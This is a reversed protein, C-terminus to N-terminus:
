VGSGSNGPRVGMMGDSGSTASYIESWASDAMPTLGTSTGSTSTGEMGTMDWASSVALEQAGTGFPAFLQPQTVQFVHDPVEFFMFDAGGGTGPTPMASSPSKPLGASVGFSPPTQESSDTPTFSSNSRSKAASSDGSFDMDSASMGHIRDMPYMSQQAFPSDKSRSPLPFQMPDNTALHNYSPDVTMNVNFSQTTSQPTQPHFIHNNNASGASQTDRLEFIPACKVADTNVPIESPVKSRSSMNGEQYEALIGKFGKIKDHQFATPVSWMSPRSGLNIGTGELDVELQAMFSETLPNKRSLAHMASGLFQLSAIMTQDKPRWKLYQVFVRAAVYLCFSM